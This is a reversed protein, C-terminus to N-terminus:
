VITTDVSAITDFQLLPVTVQPIQATGDMPAVALFPAGEKTWGTIYRVCKVGNMLSQINQQGAVCGALSHMARAEPIDSVHAANGCANATKGVMRLAGDFAV